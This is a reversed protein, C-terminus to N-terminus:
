GSVTACLAYATVNWTAGTGRATVSWGDASGNPRSSVATATDANAGGFFFGGGLARKGGPCAADAAKPSENGTQTSAAEIRELGAVGAAGAAGTPGSPLQGTALDKAQLTGDAVESSAVAGDSIEDQNVASRAIEAGGVGNTAIESRGAANAAIQRAKVAGTAINAEKVSNRPLTIAYSTGGLAVFLALWAIAHTRVHDFLRSTMHMGQASNACAFGSLTIV